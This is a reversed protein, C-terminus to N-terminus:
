WRSIEISFVSTLWPTWVDQAVTRSVSFVCWTFVITSGVSPPSTSRMRLPVVGSGACRSSYAFSPMSGSTM